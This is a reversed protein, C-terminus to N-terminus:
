SLPQRSRGGRYCNRALACESPSSVQFVVFLFSVDSWKESESKRQLLFFFWCALTWCCFLSHPFFFFNPRSKKKKVTCQVRVFPAQEKRGKVKNQTEKTAKSKIKKKKREGRKKENKGEVFLFSLVTFVPFQQVRTEGWVM